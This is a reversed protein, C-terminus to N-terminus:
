GPGPRTCNSTAPMLINPNIGRAPGRFWRQASRRGRARGQRRPAAARQARRIRPVARLTAAWRSAAASSTTQSFRRNWSRPAGSHVDVFAGSLHVHAAEHADFVAAGNCVGHPNLALNAAAQRLPEGDGEHLRDRVVLDSVAKRGAEGLLRRGRRHLRGAPLQVTAGGSPASPTPSDALTPKGAVKTLATTSPKHGRPHAVDSYRYCGPLHLPDRLFVPYGPLGM